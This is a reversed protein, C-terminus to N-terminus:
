EGSNARGEDDDETAVTASGLLSGAAVVFFVGVFLLLISFWGMGAFLLPLHPGMVVGALVVTMVGVFAVGYKSKWTDVTVVGFAIQCFLAIMAVFLGILVGQLYAPAVYM